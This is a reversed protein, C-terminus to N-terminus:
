MHYNTFLLQVVASWTAKVSMARAYVWSGSIVMISLSLVAVKRTPARLLLPTKAVDAIWHPRTLETNGAM